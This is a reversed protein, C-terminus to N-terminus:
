AGGHEVVGIVNPQAHGRSEGREAGDTRRRPTHTKPEQREPCPSDAGGEQTVLRAGIRLQIAEQEKRDIWRRPHAHGVQDLHALDIMCGHAGRRRQLGTHIGREAQRGEQAAHERARDRIGCAHPGREVAATAEKQAAELGARHHRRIGGHLKVEQEM